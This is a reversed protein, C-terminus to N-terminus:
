RYIMRRAPLSDTTPTARSERERAIVRLAIIFMTLGTLMLLIM